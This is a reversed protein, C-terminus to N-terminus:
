IERVLPLGMRTPVARTPDAISDRPDPACYICPLKYTSTVVEEM